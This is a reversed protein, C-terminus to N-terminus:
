ELEFAIRDVIRALMESGNESGFLVERAKASQRERTADDTLDLWAQAIDQPTSATKAAANSNLEAYVDKFNDVKRGHVIASGYSAPEFPTHGGSVSLSGAVFTVGAAAYWIPMEGTSDALYVRHDPQPTEDKSRRAFDFGRAALLRAIEDGRAVHRPAIILRLDPNKQAALGYADLIIEEEAPHTSAATMTTAYGFVELCTKLIPDTITTQVQLRKLNGIMEVKDSDMGLKIFRQASASDQAFCYDITGMTKRAASRLIGWNRGSTKSMRANVFVVAIGRAKAMLLRNPWVENELTILCRPQWKRYFRAMIIHLDLPSIRVIIDEDVTELARQYAVLNSVTVLIPLGPFRTKLPGLLLRLSNYEGLSAAHLWIHSGRRGNGFALSQGLSGVTDKGKILRWLIGIPLLVALVTLLARYFLM